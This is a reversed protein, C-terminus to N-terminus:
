CEATDESSFTRLIQPHSSSPPPPEGTPISSDKLAKLAQGVAASIGDVNVSYGDCIPASGPLADVLRKTITHYDTPSFANETQPVAISMIPPALCAGIATLTLLKM